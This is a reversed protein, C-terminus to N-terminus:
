AKLMPLVEGAVAWVDPTYAQAATLQAWDIKMFNYDPYGGNVAPNEWESKPVGMAQLVTGLWQQWLLGPYKKEPEDSPSFSAAM